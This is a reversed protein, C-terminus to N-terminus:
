NLGDFSPFTEPLEFKPSHAETKITIKRADAPSNNNSTAEPINARGSAIAPYALPSADDASKGFYGNSTVCKDMHGILLRNSINQYSKSTGENNLRGSADLVSKGRSAAVMDNLLKDILGQQNIKGHESSQPVKLLSDSCQNSDSSQPGFCALQTPRNMKTRASADGSNQMLLQCQYNDLASIVEGAGFLVRNDVPCSIGPCPQKAIAWQEMGQKKNTQNTWSGQSYNNLSEIPGIKRDHSFSILEKMSNVVEAIQLSRIFRKPFGLDNVLPLKMNRALQHGAAAFMNCTSQMDHPSVRDSSCDSSCDLINDHYKQAAFVFQNVQSAVLRHSLFEDHHRACFEWSLIKLDHRFVIRLKGERVVRFNKYVSEQVAKGYELMLLGSSLRCAQPKELFFIEDIMGSDFMIKFLRAFMEFTAELGKGSKSGCIDCCWTGMSKPSFVGLSYQGINEYMSLCWRKKSGPAYYESVFTRWYCINNGNPRNRLHYLYQMVRESCIDVDILNAFSVQQNGLDQLLPRMQQAPQQSHSGSLQSISHLIQQHLQNKQSYQQTLEKLQSNYDQVQKLQQRLLFQKIIQQQQIDEQNVDIRPKKLMQTIIDPEQKIKVAHSVQRTQSKSKSLDTSGSAQALEKRKREQQSRRCLHSLTKEAPSANMPVNLSFPMSSASLSIYPEMNSSDNGHLYAGSPFTLDANAVTTNAGIAPRLSSFNVLATSTLVNSALNSDLQAMGLLSGSCGERRNSSNSSLSELIGGSGNIPLIRPIGLQNNRELFAELAM